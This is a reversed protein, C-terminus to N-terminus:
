ENKKKWENIYSDIIATNDKYYNRLTRSTVGAFEALEDISGM